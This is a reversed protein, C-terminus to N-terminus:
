FYEQIQINDIMLLVFLVKIQVKLKCLVEVNMISNSEGLEANLWDNM